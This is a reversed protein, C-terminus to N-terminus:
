LQIYFGGIQIMPQKFNQTKSQSCSNIFKNNSNVNIKQKETKSDEYILNETYGGTQYINKLFKYTNESNTNQTVFETDKFINYYSTM